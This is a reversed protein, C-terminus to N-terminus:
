EGIISVVTDYDPDVVAEPLPTGKPVRFKTAYTADPGTRLCYEVEKLRRKTTVEKKGIKSTKEETKNRRYMQCIYDCAPNLFGVVSPTLASAVFPEIVESDTDNNFEREQALIVVNVPLDLLRRLHEKMQLACQGWDQQKAVGWSKQVLSEKLGLIETLVMDQLMTATDLVVTQYYDGDRVHAVLEALEDSQNLRVFDVGQKGLNHVSRTGDETGILLLPKPFTCAFTTKGTGSHGYVNMKIGRDDLSVPAIRGLVGNGRSQKAVRRSQKKVVPM